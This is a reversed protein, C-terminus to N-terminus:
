QDGNDGNTDTDEPNITSGSDLLVTVDNAEPIDIKRIRGNLQNNSQPPPPRNPPLSRSGTDNHNSPPAEVLGHCVDEWYTNCNAYWYGKGKYFTAQKVSFKPLNNSSQHNPEDQRKQPPMYRTRPQTKMAQVSMEIDSPITGPPLQGVSSIKSLATQIVTTVKGLTPIGTMDDLPQSVSYDFNKTDVGSPATALAQLLLGGLENVSIKAQEVDTM